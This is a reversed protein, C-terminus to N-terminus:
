SQLVSEREYDIAQIIAHLEALEETPLPENAWVNKRGYFTPHNAINSWAQCRSDGNKRCEITWMYGKPRIAKLADRSRTVTSHWSRLGNAHGRWARRVGELYKEVTGYMKLEEPNLFFRVWVDIEDMAEADAPDVAEIMDLIKQAAESM